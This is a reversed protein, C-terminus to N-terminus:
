RFFGEGGLDQPDPINIGAEPKSKKGDRIRISEMGSRPDLILMLYELIKVM